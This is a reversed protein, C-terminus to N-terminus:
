RYTRVCHHRIGGQATVRTEFDPAPGILPVSEGAHWLSAVAELLGEM